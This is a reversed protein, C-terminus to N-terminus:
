GHNVLHGATEYTGRPFIKARVAAPQAGGPRPRLDLCRAHHGLAGEAPRRGEDEFFKMLNLAVAKMDDQDSLVHRGQATMWQAGKEVIDNAKVAAAVKDPTAQFTQMHGVAVGLPASNAPCCQGTKGGFVPINEL